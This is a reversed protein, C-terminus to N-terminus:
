LVKEMKHTNLYKALDSKDIRILRGVRYFLPKEQDILGLVMGKSVGLHAGVDLLNLLQM